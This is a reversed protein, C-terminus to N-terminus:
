HGYMTFDDIQGTLFKVGQSKLNIQLSDSTQTNYTVQQSASHPM